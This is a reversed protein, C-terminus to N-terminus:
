NMHILWHDGINFFLTFWLRSSCNSCSGSLAGEGAFCALAADTEVAAM